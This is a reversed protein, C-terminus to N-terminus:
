SIDFGKLASKLLLLSSRSLFSEVRERVSETADPAGEVGVVGALGVDALLSVVDGM